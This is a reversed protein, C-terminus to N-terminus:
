NIFIQQSLIKNESRFTVVYMGATVQSKNIRINNSFNDNMVVKGSLDTLSFDYNNEDEVSILLSSGEDSYSFLFADLLEQNNALTATPTYTSNTIVYDDGEKQYLVVLLGLESVNWDDEVNGTMTITSNPAVSVGEPAGLSSRMINTHIADNGQGSQAYEVNNELVYTAVTYDAAPPLDAVRIKATIIGSLISYQDFQVLVPAADAQDNLLQVNEDLESEWNGGNVSNIDNDFYFKPQGSVNLNDTYWKSAETQLDSNGKHASVLVIPGSPFKEKLAELYDWGWNGCNPCWTATAKTVITNGQQQANLSFFALFILLTFLHKM